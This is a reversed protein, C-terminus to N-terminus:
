IKIDSFFFRSCFVFARCDSQWCSTEIGLHPVWLSKKKVRRWMGELIGAATLLPSYWKVRFDSYPPSGTNEAEHTLHQSTKWENYLPSTALIVDTSLQQLREAPSYNWQQFELLSSISSDLVSVLVFCLTLLRLKSSLSFLLRKLDLCCILLLPKIYQM